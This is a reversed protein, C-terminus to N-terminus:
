VAARRHTHPPSAAADAQLYDLLQLLQLSLPACEASGSGPSRPKIPQWGSVCWHSCLRCQPPWKSAYTCLHVILSCKYVTSFGCRFQRSAAARPHHAQFNPQLVPVPLSLCRAAAPAVEHQVETCVDEPMVRVSIAARGHPCAPSSETSAQLYNLLQLYQVSLAACEASTTSGLSRPKLISRWRSGCRLDCLLFNLAGPSATCSVLM